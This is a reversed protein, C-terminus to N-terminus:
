FNDTELVEEKKAQQLLLDELESQLTIKRGSLSKNYKLNWTGTVPSEYVAKTWMCADVISFEYCSECLATNGYNFMGTITGSISTPKVCKVTTTEPGNCVSVKTSSKVVPDATGYGMFTVYGDLCTFGLFGYDLISMGSAQSGELWTRPQFIGEPFECEFGLSAQRLKKFIDADRDTDIYASNAGQGFVYSFIENAKVKVLYTKEQREGGRVIYLFTVSEGFDDRGFRAVEGCSVCAGAEVADCCEPLVLYGKLNDSVLKYSLHRPNVQNSKQVTLVPEIRKFTAKFTYISYSKQYEDAFLMCMCLMAFLVIAKKM